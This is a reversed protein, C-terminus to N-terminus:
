TPPIFHVISEISRRPRYPPFEDPYGVPIIAAPQVGEPCDIAAAIAQDNFAGVWCARLGLANVVLLLNQTM